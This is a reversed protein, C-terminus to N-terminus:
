LMLLKIKFNTLYIYLIMITGIRKTAVTYVVGKITTVALSM